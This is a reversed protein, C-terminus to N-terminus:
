EEGSQTTNKFTTRELDHLNPPERLDWAIIHLAPRECAAAYVEVLVVRRPHAVWECVGKCYCGGVEVGVWVQVCGYARVGVM